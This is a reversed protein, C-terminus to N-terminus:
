LVSSWSLGSSWRWLYPQIEAAALAIGAYVCCEAISQSKSISLSTLLAVNGFSVSQRKCLCGNRSGGAHKRILPIQPGELALSNGNIYTPGKTVIKMKVRGPIKANVTCKNKKWCRGIEPISPNQCWKSIRGLSAFVLANCLICLKSWIISYTLALGWNWAEGLCSILQM